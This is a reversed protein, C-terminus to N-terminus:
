RRLDRKMEEFKKKSIEGRAYRQRLTELASERQGTLNKIALYILYILAAWFLIMILFGIVGFIGFGFMHGYGGLINDAKAINALGILIMLYVLIKKKM